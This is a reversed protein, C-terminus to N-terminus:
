KRAAELLGRPASGRDVAESKGVQRKRHPVGPVPPHPVRCMSYAIVLGVAWLPLVVAITWAM